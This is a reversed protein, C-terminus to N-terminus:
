VGVLAIFALMAIGCVVYVRNRWVKQPSLHRPSDTRTFLCLSFYSLTVRLLAALTLHARPVWTVPGQRPASRPPM